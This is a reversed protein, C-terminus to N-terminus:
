IIVEASAYLNSVFLMAVAVLVMNNLLMAGALSIFTISSSVPHLCMSCAVLLRKSIFHKRLDSSRWAMCVVFSDCHALSDIVRSAILFGVLREFLSYLQAKQPMAVDGSM